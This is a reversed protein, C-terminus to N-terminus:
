TGSPASVAGTSAAASVAVGVESSALAAVGAAYAGGAGYRATSDFRSPAQLSPDEWAGGPRWSIHTTLRRVTDVSASETIVAGTAVLCQRPPTWDIGRPSDRDRKQLAVQVAIRPLFASRIM